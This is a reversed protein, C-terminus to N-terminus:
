AGLQVLGQVSQLDNSGNTTTGNQDGMQIKTRQRGIGLAADRDSGKKTRCVDDRNLELL